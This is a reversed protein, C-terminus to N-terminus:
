SAVDISSPNLIQTYGNYSSVLGTVDITKGELTSAPDISFNPLDSSFICVVFGQTYNQFQDLFETGNADTDTYGVTFRVTEYDGIDNSAQAASIINSTPNTATTTTEHQGRPPANPPMASSSFETGLYYAGTCMGAVVIVVLVWLKRV